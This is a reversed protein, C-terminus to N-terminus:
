MAGARAYLDVNQVVSSNLSAAVYPGHVRMDDTEVEAGGIFNYGGELGFGGDFVYQGYVQANYMNEETVTTDGAISYGGNIGTRIEGATASAYLAGACLASLALNKLNLISM